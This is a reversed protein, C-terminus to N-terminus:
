KKTTRKLYSEPVEESVEEIIKASINADKVNNIISTELLDKNIRKKSYSIIRFIDKGIQIAGDPNESNKLYDVIQADLIKKKNRLESAIKSTERLKDDIEIYEKIVTNM